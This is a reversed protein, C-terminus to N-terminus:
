GRKLYSGARGKLWETYDNLIKPMDVVFLLEYEGTDDRETQYNQQKLWKYVEIESPPLSVMFALPNEPSDAEVTQCYEWANCKAETCDLKSNFRCKM